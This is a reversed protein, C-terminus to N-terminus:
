LKFNSYQWTFANSGWYMIRTKIYNLIINMNKVTFLEFEKYLKNQDHRIGEIEKNIYGKHNELSREFRSTIIKKLIYFAITSFAASSIIVDLYNSLLDNM